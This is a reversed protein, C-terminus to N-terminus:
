LLTLYNQLHPALEPRQGQRGLVCDIQGHTACVDCCGGPGDVGPVAPAALGAQACEMCACKSGWQNCSLMDTSRISLVHALCFLADCSSQVVVCMCCEKLNSREAPVAIVEDVHKLALASCQM